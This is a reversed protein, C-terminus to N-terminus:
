KRVTKGIDNVSQKALSIKQHNQRCGFSKAKVGNIGEAVLLSLVMEMYQFYYKSFFQEICEGNLGDM